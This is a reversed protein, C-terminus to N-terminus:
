EGFTEYCITVDGLDAFQENMGQRGARTRARARRRDLPGFPGRGLDGGAGRRAGFLARGRRGPRAFDLVGRREAPRGGAAGRVRRDVRAREYRRLTAAPVTWGMAPTLM